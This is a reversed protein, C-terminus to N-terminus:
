GRLAELAERLRAVREHDPGLVTGMADIHRRMFARAKVLEGRESYNEALAQVWDLAHDAQEVLAARLATEERVAEGLRLREAMALRLRLGDTTIPKVLVDNAGASLAEVRDSTSSLATVLIVYTEENAETERVRRCLDLGSLGPMLWDTVIVHPRFSVYKEWADEGTDALMVEHGLPATVAEVHLQSLPDDDAILVRM